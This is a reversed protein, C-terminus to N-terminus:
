VQHVPLAGGKCATQLAPKGLEFSEIKRGGGGGGRARMRNRRQKM